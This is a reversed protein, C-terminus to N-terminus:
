GAETGSYNVVLLGPTGSRVIPITVGCEYCGPMPLGFGIPGAHATWTTGNSSTWSQLPAVPMWCNPRTDQGQCQDAGGQLTLAVIGEATEGLGVVITAPGFVETDLLRWDAGDTSVWVPTRSTAGTAGTAIPEGVAVFGGRWRVVSRVQALPDDTVLKRWNIGTWATAADPAVALRFDGLSAPSPHPSVTPMAASPMTTSPARSSTVAPPAGTSTASATASTTPDVACGAVLVALLVALPASHRTPMRRRPRTDM